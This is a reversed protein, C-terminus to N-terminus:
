RSRDVVSASCPEDRCNEDSLPLPKDRCNERCQFANCIYVAGFTVSESVRSLQGHVMNLVNRRVTAKNVLPLSSIRVTCRKKKESLPSPGCHQSHVGACLRKTRGAYVVAARSFRVSGDSLELDAAGLSGISRLRITDFPRMMTQRKRQPRTPTARTQQKRNM